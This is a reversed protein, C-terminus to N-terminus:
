LALLRRRLRRPKVSLINWFVNGPDYKRKIGRLKEYNPSFYNEVHDFRNLWGNYEAGSDYRGIVDRAEAFWAWIPDSIQKPLQSGVKRMGFSAGWECVMRQKRNGFASYGDALQTLGPGHARCLIQRWAKTAHSPRSIVDRIAELGKTSIIQSFYASRYQAAERM